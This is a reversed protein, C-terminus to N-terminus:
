LTPVDNGIFLIDNIYLMFFIIARENVKKYVYHENDNKIFHFM